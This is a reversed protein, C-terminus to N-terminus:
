ALADDMSVDFGADKLENVLKVVWDTSNSYKIYEVGAYDSHIETVDPTKVLASVNERGLHGIFFGLEFITNQRARMKEKGDSICTDDPSLLAVAYGAEKHAEIKEIITKGRSPKKGIDVPELKLKELVSTVATRMESDHGYVLFVKNSATASRLGHTEPDGVSGYSDHEELLATLTGVLIARAHNQAAYYDDRFTTLMLNTLDSQKLDSYYQSKVGYARRIHMRARDASTTIIRQHQEIQAPSDYMSIQNLSAVEDLIMRLIKLAEEQEM